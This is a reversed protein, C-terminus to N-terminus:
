NKLIKLLYVFRLYYLCIAMYADSEAIVIYRFNVITSTLCKQMYEHLLIEQAMVSV